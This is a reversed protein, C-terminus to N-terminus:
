TIAYQFMRVVPQKIVDPVPIKSKIWPIPIRIANNIRVAPCLAIFPKIKRNFSPQSSLLAFMVNSGQSMGVYGLTGTHM